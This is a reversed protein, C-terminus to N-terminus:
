GQRSARDVRTLVLSYRVRPAPRQNTWSNPNTWAAGQLPTRWAPYPHYSQVVSNSFWLLQRAKKNRCAVIAQLAYAIRYLRSEAASLNTQVDNTWLTQESCLHHAIKCAYWYKSTMTVQRDRADSVLEALRTGRPSQAENWEETLCPNCENVMSM